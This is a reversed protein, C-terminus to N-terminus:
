LSTAMRVMGGDVYYTSATVYAADSVLFAAVAAV